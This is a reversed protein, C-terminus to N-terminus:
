RVIKFEIHPYNHLFMKKKLRFTPTEMGKVDEVVTNYDRDIYEFDAEYNIARITKGRHKFSSQLEYSPHVELGTIEGEQERSLLVLYREAEKKSDFQIGRITVKQANYKNRRSM